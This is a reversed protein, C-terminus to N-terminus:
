WEYNNASLQLEKRSHSFMLIQKQECLVLLAYKCIYDHTVYRLCYGISPQM